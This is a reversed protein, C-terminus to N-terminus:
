CAYFGVTWEDCCCNFSVHIDFHTDDGIDLLLKTFSASEFDEVVSTLAITFLSYNNVAYFGIVINDAKKTKTSLMFLQVSLRVHIYSHATQVYIPAYEVFIM